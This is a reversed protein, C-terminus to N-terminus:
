PFTSAVASNVLEIVREPAADAAIAYTVGHDVFFAVRFGREEDLIVQRNAIIRIRKFSTFSDAPMADFIFVSIPNGATEYRLYAAPHNGVNAIRGGRLAAGGFLPPHVAFDVKDAYWRQVQDRAGAVELPLNRQHKTVVDQALSDLPNINLISAQNTPSKQGGNFNRGTWAHVALLLTAVAGGVMFVSNWRQKKQESLSEKSLAREIRKRALDSLQEDSARARIESRWRKLDHAKQQCEACGGLHHGIAQLDEAAFEGDVYLDLIARVKACNDWPTSM